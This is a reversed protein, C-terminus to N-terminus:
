RWKAATVGPQQDAASRRGSLTTNSNIVYAKCVPVCVYGIIKRKGNQYGNINVQVKECLLEVCKCECDILYFNGEM